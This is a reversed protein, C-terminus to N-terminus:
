LASSSSFLESSLLYELAPFQYILHVPIAVIVGWLRGFPVLLFLFCVVVSRVRWLSFLLLFILM